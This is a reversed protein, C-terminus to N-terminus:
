NSTNIGFSKDTLYLAYVGHHSSIKEFQWNLALKPNIAVPTSDNVVIAMNKIISINSGTEKNSLSGSSKETYISMGMKQQLNMSVAATGQLDVTQFKMKVIGNSTQNYVMYDYTTENKCSTLIVALACILLLPKMIFYHKHTHNVPTFSCDDM